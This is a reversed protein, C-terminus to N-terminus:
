DTVTAVTPCVAFFVVKGVFWTLLLIVVLLSTMLLTNNSIVNYIEALQEM